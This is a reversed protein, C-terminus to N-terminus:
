KYYLVDVISGAVANFLQVTSLSSTVWFPKKAELLVGVTLTPTTGDDTYRCDQVTPVLLAFTAGTPVTLSTATTPTIKEHGSAIPDIDGFPVIKSPM